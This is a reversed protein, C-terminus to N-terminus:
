ALLATRLHRLEEEVSEGESLTQAIEEKLIDGYRRRLRHVGVKVAGESLGLAEGIERYSDTQTGPTLLDKLREFQTERGSRTYEGRLRKLATELLALAWDREFLAEPAREAAWDGRHREEAEAFDLPIFSVAGGRKLTRARDRENSLFHNVSALLFSRFKGKEPHVGKLGEKELLRAFFEQTLDQADEQSASRRRIYAYLPYWYAACLSELAQRARLPNSSCASLVMSWHTTAFHAM